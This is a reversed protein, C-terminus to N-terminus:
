ELAFRVIIESSIKIKEFQINTEYDKDQIEKKSQSAAGRIRIGATSGSLQSSFNNRNGIFIANGVKQNLPKTFSVANAKANEM